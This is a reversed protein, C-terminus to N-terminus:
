GVQWDPEPVRGEKIGIISSISRGRKIEKLCHYHYMKVKYLHQRRNKHIQFRKM